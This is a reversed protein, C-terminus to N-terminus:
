GGPLNDNEAATQAVNFILNLNAAEFGKVGTRAFMATVNLGHADCDM